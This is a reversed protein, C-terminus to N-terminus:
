AVVEVALAEEHMVIETKWYVNYWFKHGICRQRRDSAVFGWKMLRRLANSLSREAKIWTAYSSTDMGLIQAIEKLSKGEAESTPLILLIQEQNM